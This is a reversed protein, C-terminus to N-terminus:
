LLNFCYISGEAWEICVLTGLDSYYCYYEVNPCDLETNERPIRMM